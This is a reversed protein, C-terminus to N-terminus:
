KGAMVKYIRVFPFLNVNLTSVAKNLVWCKTGNIHRACSYGRGLVIPRFMLKMVEDM